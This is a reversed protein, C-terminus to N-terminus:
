FKVRNMENINPANLANEGSPTVKAYNNLSRQWTEGNVLKSVTRRNPLVESKDKKGKLLGILRSGM